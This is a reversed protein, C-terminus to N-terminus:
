ERMYHKNPLDTETLHSLLYDRALRALTKKDLLGATGSFLLDLLRERFREHHARHEALTPCNNLALFKEEADFHEAILTAFDNLVSFFERRADAESSEACRSARNCIAVLQRHQIDIQSNGVALEDSWSPFQSMVPTGNSEIAGIKVRCSAFGM